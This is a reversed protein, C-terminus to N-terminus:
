RGRTCFRAYSCYFLGLRLYNSHPSTQLSNMPNTKRFNTRTGVSQTRSIRHPLRVWGFCVFCCQGRKVYRMQTSCCTSFSATGGYCCWCYCWDIGLIVCDLECRCCCWCHCSYRMRKSNRVGSCHWSVKAHGMADNAHPATIQPSYCLNPYYREDHNTVHQNWTPHAPISHHHLAYYDITRM